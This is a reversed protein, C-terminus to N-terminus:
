YKVLNYIENYFFFIMFLKFSTYQSKIVINYLNNKKLNWKKIKKKMNVQLPNIIRHINKDVTEM